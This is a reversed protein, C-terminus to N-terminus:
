EDNLVERILPAGRSPPEPPPLDPDDRYRDAADCNNCTWARVYAVQRPDFTTTAYLMAGCEECDPPTPLWPLLKRGHDRVADTVSPADSTTDFTPLDM